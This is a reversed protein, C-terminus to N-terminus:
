NIKYLNCTTTNKEVLEDNVRNFQITYFRPIDYHVDIITAIYEDQGNRTYLVKEGKSFEYKTNIEGTNKLNLEYQAVEFKYIKRKLEINQKKLELICMERQRMKNSFFSRCDKSKERTKLNLFYENGSSDICMVWECSNNKLLHYYSQLKTPKCPANPPTPFSEIFDTPIPDISTPTNIKLDDNSINDIIVNENYHQPQKKQLRKSRRTATPFLNISM